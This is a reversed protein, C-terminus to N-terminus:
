NAAPPRLNVVRVAYDRSVEDYVGLALRLSPTLSEV